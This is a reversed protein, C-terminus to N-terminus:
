SKGRVKEIEARLEAVLEPGVSATFKEVVPQVKERM